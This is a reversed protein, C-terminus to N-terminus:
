KKGGKMKVIDKRQEINDEKKWLLMVIGVILSPIGYILTVWSDEFSAFISLLILTIGIAILVIGAIISSLPHKAM